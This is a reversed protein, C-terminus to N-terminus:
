CAGDRRGRRDAPAIDSERQRAHASVDDGKLVRGHDVRRQQHGVALHRKGVVGFQPHITRRDLRLRSCLLYLGLCDLLRAALGAEEDVVFDGHVLERHVQVGRGARQRQRVRQLVIHQEGRAIDPYPVAVGICEDGLANGDAVVTIGALQPDRYRVLPIDDDFVGHLQQAFQSRRDIYGIGGLEAAGAAELAGIYRSEPHQLGVGADADFGVGDPQRLDVRVVNLPGERARLERQPLDVPLGALAYLRARGLGRAHVADHLEVAQIVVLEVDNLLRLRRCSVRWAERRPVERYGARVFGGPRIEQLRNAFDEVTLKRHASALDLYCVFDCLYGDALHRDGAAGLQRARFELDRISFGDNFFPGGPSGRVLDNRLQRCALRVLQHLLARGVAIDHRLRDVERHTRVTRHVLNLHHVARRAYGDALHRDGAAGLQRARLELDHVSIGDNLLPDGIGSRM